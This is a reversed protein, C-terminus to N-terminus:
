SQAQPSYEEVRMGFTTAVAEHATRCSAPVGLWYAAATSPCVVRVMRMPRQGPQGGPLEYLTGYDDAQVVTAHLLDAVRDGVAAVIARRREQSTEALFAQRDGEDGYAQYRVSLSHGRNKRYVWPGVTIERGDASVVPLEGLPCTIILQDYKAAPVHHRHTWGHDSWEVVHEYEVGAAGIRVETQQCWTRPILRRVATCHEATRRTRREALAARARALGDVAAPPQNAARQKRAAWIAQLLGEIVTEEAATGHFRVLSTRSRPPSIREAARVDAPRGTRVLAVALPWRRGLRVRNAQRDARVRAAVRAEAVQRDTLVCGYRSTSRHEEAWRRQWAAQRGPEDGAHTRTGWDAPAPPCPLVALATCASFDSTTSITSITSM